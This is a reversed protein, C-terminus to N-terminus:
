REANRAMKVTRTFPFARGAWVRTFRDLGTRKRARMRRAFLKSHPTPITASSFVIGFFQHFFLYFLPIVKRLKRGASAEGILRGTDCHGTNPFSKVMGLWVYRNYPFVFVCVCACLERMISHRCMM